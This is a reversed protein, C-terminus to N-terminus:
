QIRAPSIGAERRVSSYFDIHGCPNEWGDCSLRCSGDYSITRFVEGRPGGCRPCQWALTVKVSYSGAHEDRGPIEVTRTPPADNGTMLAAPTTNPAM